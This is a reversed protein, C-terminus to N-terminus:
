DTISGASLNAVTATMAGARDSAIFAATDAVEDLTPLRKLLTGQELIAQFQAASVGAAQAATAFNEEILPTEPIAHPRLCVVRIGAPGVELALSRSFAEVAAWAPASGGILNAPMRGPVATLTVILGSGQVSMHRAAATATIFNSSTYFAIPRAFADRALETLPVRGPTPGPGIANFSIDVGGAGEVVTNLHEEVAKQNLADVQATEAVGGAGAIDRAVVDVKAVNPGTLFLRAGERAFARAVAGGIAGGAGYIVATTNELLM